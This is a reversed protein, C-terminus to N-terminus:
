PLGSGRMCDRFASAVLAVLVRPLKPLLIVEGAGEGGGRQMFRRAGSSAFHQTVCLSPWHLEIGMGDRAFFVCMQLSRGSRVLLTEPRGGMGWHHLTSAVPTQRLSPLTRKKRERFPGEQGAVGSGRCCQLVPPLPAAGLTAGSRTHTKESPVSHFDM